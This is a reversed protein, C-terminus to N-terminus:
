RTRGNRKNKRRKSKRKKKGDRRNSRVSLSGTLAHRKTKGEGRRLRAIFLCAAAASVVATVICFIFTIDFKSDGKKVNWEEKETVSIPEGTNGTEKLKQGLSQSAYIRKRNNQVTQVQQPEMGEQTEGPIEEVANEGANERDAEGAIAEQEAAEQTAAGEGGAEGTQVEQAPPDAQQEETNKQEIAADGRIYGAAGGQITVAHWVSGDEATVDGLYEFSGGQVLNGLPASTESTQEYVVASEANLVAPAAEATLAYGGLFLVAGLAHLLGKGYKRKRTM